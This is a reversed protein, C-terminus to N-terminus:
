SRRRRTRVDEGSTRAQRRRTRTGSTGIASLPVFRRTWRLPERRWTTHPCATPQARYAVRRASRPVRRRRALHRRLPRTTPRVPAPRRFPSLGLPSPRRYGSSGHSQGSTATRCRSLTHQPGRPPLVRQRPRVTLPWLSGPPPIPAIREAIGCPAEWRRSALVTSALGM